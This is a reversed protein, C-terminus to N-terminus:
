RVSPLAIVRPSRYTQGVTAPPNVASDEILSDWALFWLWPARADIEPLAGCETLAILKRGGHAERLRDFVTFFNGREGAPAYIDAGVVDTYGDGPYWDRADGDDTGTWVWLLNDLGHHRTFRDFMLRYLAKTAAPGRAGWWFWGGQAEHLPRWLVPVRADRLIKLNEAVLDLDRLVADHEPTGPAVARAVDFATKNTSFSDWVLPGPDLPAFWHWSLTVIGGRRAWALAAEIAGDGSPNNWSGSYYLLDLGLIAPAAGDALRAVADLRTPAAVQSEHQGAFTRRGFEAALRAYLARAEPSAAPNAPAPDLRFPPPASVRELRIAAIDAYGWDAGVRITNNGAPLWVRGFERTEFGTTEPFIRSSQLSGNVSIPIRKAAGASYILSLRRYGASAVRVTFDLGDGAREIGTAHAPTASDASAAVLRAGGLPAALTAPVVLPRVCAGLLLACSVVGLLRAFSSSAAPSPRSFNM